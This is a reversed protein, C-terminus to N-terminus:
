ACCTCCVGLKTHQSYSIEKMSVRYWICLIRIVIYYVLVLFVQSIAHKFMLSATVGPSKYPVFYCTGTPLGTFQDIECEGNTIYDVLSGGMCKGCKVAAIDGYGNRYFRPYGSVPYEDRLGWRLHAWEHVFTPGIILFVINIRVSVQSSTQAISPHTCLCAFVFVCMFVSMRMCTVCMCM